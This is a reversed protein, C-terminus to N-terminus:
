NGIMEGPELSSELKIGCGPKTVEWLFDEENFIEFIKDIVAQRFKKPGKVEIKITDTKTEKRM